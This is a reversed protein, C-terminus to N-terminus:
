VSYQHDITGGGLIEDGKSIVLSQGPAVGFQPEDFVVSFRYNEISSVVATAPKHRSRIQGMVQEGVAPEHIWRAHSAFVKTRGLEDRHGVMIENRKPDIQVVYYPGGALGLGRRQGVTYHIVGRHTGLIRGETDVINGSEPEIYRSLFETYDGKRVFCIDQSEPKEATELQLERAIERVETKKLEGLPFLITKLYDKPIGYLYYSQDKEPNIARRLHPEGHEDVHLRAYHGTAVYTCELERALEFAYDFRMYSNCNVCPNPTYGGKYQNVFPMIVRQHFDRSTNVTRHRMGLRTAVEHADVLDAYSCCTGMVDEPMPDHDLQKMTVGTVEYGQRRLLAGAVSSDVGGSMLMMVRNKSM